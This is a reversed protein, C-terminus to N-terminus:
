RKIQTPMLTQQFLINFFLGVLKENMVTQIYLPSGLRNQDPNEMYFFFIEIFFLFKIYELLKKSVFFIHNEIINQLNHRLYYPVDIAKM